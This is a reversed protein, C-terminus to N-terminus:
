DLILGHLKAREAAMRRTIQFPWVINRALNDMRFRFRKCKCIIQFQKWKSIQQINQAFSVQWDFTRLLAHCIDQWPKGLQCNPKALQMAMGTILSARIAVMQSPWLINRAQKAPCNLNAIQCDPKAVDLEWEVLTGLSRSINRAREGRRPMKEQCYAKNGQCNQFKAQCRGTAMRRTIMFYKKGAEWRRPRSM